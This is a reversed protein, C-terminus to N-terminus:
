ALGKVVLFVVAANMILLLPVGILFKAHKTKHRFALMGLLAGPGGMLAAALLLMKESVRRRGRVAKHKDMGYMIFVIINWIGLIIFVYKTFDTM